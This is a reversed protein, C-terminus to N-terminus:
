NKNHGFIKRLFVSLVIIRCNVGVLFLNVHPMKVLSHDGDEQFHFFCRLFLTEFITFFLPVTNKLLKLSPRFYCKEVAVNSIM